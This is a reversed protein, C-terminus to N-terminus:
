ESVSCGRVPPLNHPLDAGAVVEKLRTRYDAVIAKVAEEKEPSLSGVLRVRGAEDAPALQDGCQWTRRGVKGCAKIVADVPEPNPPLKKTGEEAEVVTYIALARHRGTVWRNDTVMVGPLSNGFKPLGILKEGFVPAHFHIVVSRRIGPLIAPM